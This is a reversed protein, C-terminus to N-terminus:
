PGKPKYNRLMKRITDAEEKSLRQSQVLHMIFPAMSGDSLQDAFEELKHGAIDTETVAASFGHPHTSRDRKVAKKAELRKLMSHVTAFDSASCNPYVVETIGRATEKGHQWLVRLVALEADTVKKAM